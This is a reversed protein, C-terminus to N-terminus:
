AGGDTRVQAGAGTTGARGSGLTGGGGGVDGFGLKSMASGLVWRQETEDLRGLESLVIGLAAVEKPLGKAM